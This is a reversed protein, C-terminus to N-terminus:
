TVENIKLFFTFKVDFEVHHLHQLRHPSWWIPLIVVVGVCMKRIKVLFKFKWEFEIHNNLPKWIVLIELM